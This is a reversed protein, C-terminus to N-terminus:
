VFSFYFKHRLFFEVAIRPDIQSKQYLFLIKKTNACTCLNELTWLFRQACFDLVATQIMIYAYWKLSIKDCLDHYKSEQEAQAELLKTDVLVPRPLLCCLWCSFTSSISHWSTSITYDFFVFLVAAPIVAVALVAAVSSCYFKKWFTRQLSLYLLLLRSCCLACFSLNCLGTLSM